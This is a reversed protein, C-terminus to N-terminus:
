RWFKWWEAKSENSQPNEEESRIGMEIELLRLAVVLFRIGEAAPKLQKEQERTIQGERKLRLFSAHTEHTAVLMNLCAQHLDRNITLGEHDNAKVLRKLYVTDLFLRAHRILEEDTAPKMVFCFLHFCNALDTSEEDIRRMADRINELDSKEQKPEPM